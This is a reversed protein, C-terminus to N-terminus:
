VQRIEKGDMKINNKWSHRQRGLPRKVEPKEEWARYGKRKVEMCAVQGLERMWRM